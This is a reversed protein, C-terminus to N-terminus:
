AYTIEYNGSSTFTRTPDTSGDSWRTFAWEREWASIRGPATWAEGSNLTYQM